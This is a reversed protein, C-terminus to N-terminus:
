CPKKKKHKKFAHSYLALVCMCVCGCAMGGLLFVYIRKFCGYFMWWSQGPDYGPGCLLDWCM